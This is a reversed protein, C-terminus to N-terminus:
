QMHDRSHKNQIVEPIKFTDNQKSLFFNIMRVLLLLDSLHSSIGIQLICHGIDCIELYLEFAARIM